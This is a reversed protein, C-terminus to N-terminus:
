EKVEIIKPYDEVYVGMSNGSSGQDIAGKLPNYEKFSVKKPFKLRAWVPPNNIETGTFNNWNSRANWLFIYYKGNSKQLFTSRVFQFNDTHYATSKPDPAFPKTTPQLQYSLSGLKFSKANNGSDSVFSIMNKLITYAPKPTLDLKLIGWNDSTDARNSTSDILEHIYTRKIGRNFHHLLLRPIYKGQLSEPLGSVSSTRYGAETSISPLNIKQTTTSATLDAFEIYNQLSVTKVSCTRYNYPRCKSNEVEPFDGAYYTHLNNFDSIKGIGRLQDATPNIGAVKYYPGILSPGLVSIQNTPAPSNKVATWLAKQSILANAPFPLGFITTSASLDPENLGEVQSVVDKVQNLCKQYAQTIDKLTSSPHGKPISYNSFVLSFKIGSKRYDKMKSLIIPWDDFSCNAGDRAYRVGLKLLANKIGTYNTRYANQAYPGSQLNVWWLETRMGISDVFDDARRVPPVELRESASNTSHSCSVLSFLSFGIIATVQNVLRIKVTSRPALRAKDGNASSYIAM